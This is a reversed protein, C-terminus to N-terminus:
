VQQWGLKIFRGPLHNGLLTALLMIGEAFQFLQGFSNDYHVSVHRWHTSSKGPQNSAVAIRSECSFYVSKEMDAPNWSWSLVIEQVNLATYVNRTYLCQVTYQAFTDNFPARHIHIDLGIKNENPSVSIYQSIVELLFYCDSQNMLHSAAWDHSVRQWGM